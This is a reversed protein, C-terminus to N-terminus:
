SVSTHGLTLFLTQGRRGLSIRQPTRPVPEHDLRRVLDTRHGLLGEVGGTGNEDADVYIIPVILFEKLLDVLAANMLNSFFHNRMCAFLFSDPHSARGFDANQEKAQQECVM